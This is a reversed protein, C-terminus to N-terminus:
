LIFLYITSFFILGVLLRRRLCCLSIFHFIIALISLIIEVVEEHWVILNKSGWRGWWHVAGWFCWVIVLLLALVWGHVLLGLASLCTLVYFYNVMEVSMLCNIIVVYLLIIFILARYFLLLKVIDLLSIIVELDIEHRGVDIIVMGLVVEDDDISWRLLVHIVPGAGWSSSGSALSLGRWSGLTCRLLLWIGLWGLLLGVLLKEGGVILGLLLWLCAALLLWYVHEFQESVWRGVWVIHLVRWAREIVHLRSAGTLWILSLSGLPDGAIVRLFIIFGPVRVTGTIDVLFIIILGGFLYSEVHAVWDNRIVRAGGVCRLAEGRFTDVCAELVVCLLLSLRLVLLFRCSLVM